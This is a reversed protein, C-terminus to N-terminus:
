QDISGRHLVGSDIFSVRFPTLHFDWEKRPSFTPWYSLRAFGGQVALNICIFTPITSMILMHGIINVNDVTFIGCGQDIRIM